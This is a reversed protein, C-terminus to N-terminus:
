VEDGDFDMRRILGDEILYSHEVNEDIIVSGDLGRVILHVTVTTRGDEDSRLDIPEAHPDILSWQRAWYERLGNHGHVRGGEMGNPWDVDPHMLALVGDIARANFSAYAASLLDCDNQSVLGSSLHGYGSRRIGEVNEM